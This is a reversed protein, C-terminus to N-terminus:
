LQQALVEVQEQREGQSLKSHPNLSSWQPHARAKNLPEPLKGERWTKDQPTAVQISDM